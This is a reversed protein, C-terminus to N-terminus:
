ETVHKDSFAERLKREAQAKTSMKTAAFNAEAAAQAMDQQLSEQYAIALAASSRWGAAEAASRESDSKVIKQTARMRQEWQKLRFTYEDEGDKGPKRVVPPEDQCVIRGDDRVTALYLMQPYPRFRYPNGPDGYKGPFQEFKALALAEESDPTIIVAM